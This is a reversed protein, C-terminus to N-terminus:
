RLIQGTCVLRTLRCNSTLQASVVFFCGQNEVVQLSNSVGLQLMGTCGSRFTSQLTICADLLRVIM